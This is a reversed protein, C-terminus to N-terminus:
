EALSRKILVKTCSRTSTSTQKSLSDKHPIRLHGPNPEEPASLIDSKQELCFASSITQAHVETKEGFTSLQLSAKESSPVTSPSSLDIGFLRCSGARKVEEIPVSMAENNPLKQSFSLRPSCVRGGETPSLLCNGNGIINMHRQHWSDSKKEEEAITSQVLDQPHVLVSNWHSSTPSIDIIHLFLNGCHLWIM